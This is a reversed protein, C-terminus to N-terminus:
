VRNITSDFIAFQARRAVLEHGDLEDTGTQGVEARTPAERPAESPNARNRLLWLRLRRRSESQSGIVVVVMHQTTNHQKLQFDLMEPRM